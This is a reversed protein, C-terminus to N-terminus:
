SQCVARYPRGPLADHWERLTLERGAVRCAHRKWAAPAITWRVAARTPAVAFLYRGDPSLAAGLYSDPEVSLLEGIRTQTAADVLELTGDQGATALITGDPTFGLWLVRNDDHGELPRGIPRWTKTSWLQATGDYHGTVIARGDPSFAVSRSDAPTPLSAVLAGGHVARIETPRQMTAFALLRGDRSFTIAPATVKVDFSTPARRKVDWVRVHGGNYKADGDWIGLEAAALLTGDPSFALAQSTTHQGHLEGAAQLTRADWLTLHGYQGTAALLRGDPSYAVAAVFGRLAHVSRRVRLTRADLLDVMGDSHGIALTHGDPSLTVGRPLEDGDDPRFPRDAAFPRVLSRDGDLDWAFVRKDSGASYATRGEAAVDLGYVTGKAHGTLVQQIAGHAVDWVIVKGDDGATVLTRGGAAFRMRLVPADHGGAFTRVRGTRLDLLRVGGDKSGLAFM